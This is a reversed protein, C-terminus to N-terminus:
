QAEARSVGQKKLTGRNEGCWALAEVCSHKEVLANEIRMLESFLKIDVLTQIDARGTDCGVEIGQSAALTKATRMRGSRLLYDVVYRDLTHDHSPADVATATSTKKKVVEVSKMEVNKDPRDEMQAALATKELDMKTDIDGKPEDDEDMESEKEAAIVADARTAATESIEAMAAATKAAAAQRSAALAADIHALRERLTSASTPSPQLDDLKRKLGRM